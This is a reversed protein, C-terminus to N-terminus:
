DRRVLIHTSENASKSRRVAAFIKRSQAENVQIVEINMSLAPKATCQTKDLMFPGIRDHFFGSAKPDVDPEM